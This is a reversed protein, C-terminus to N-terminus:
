GRLAPIPGGWHKRGFLNVAQYAMASQVRNYGSQRFMAQMLRDAENRSVTVTRGQDDTLTCGKWAEPKRGGMARYLADHALSTADGAGFPTIGIISWAFRPVSAGDWVYGAPVWLKRLRGDRRWEVYWQETTEALVSSIMRLSPQEFKIGTIKM